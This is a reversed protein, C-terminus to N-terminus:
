SSPTFFREPRTELYSAIDRVRKKLERQIMDDLGQHSHIENARRIRSAVESFPLVTSFYTWDGLHCRIAPFSSVRAM